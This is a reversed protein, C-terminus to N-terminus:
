EAVVGVAMNSVMKGSADLTPPNEVVVMKPGLPNNSSPARSGGHSSAGADVHTVFNCAACMVSRAGAAYMLQIGCGGCQCRSAHGAGSSSAANVTDCVSCRVSAAGRAYALRTRCGACDLQATDAGSSPVQTVTSCLACRVNSAGQSSFSFPPLPTLSLPLSPIEDRRARPSTPAARPPTGRRVQPYVLLTRCGQGHQGTCIIRGDAGPDTPLLPPPLRPTLAPAGFSPVGCRPAKRRDVRLLARAPRPRPAARAPTPEATRRPLSSAPRVRRRRGSTPDRATPWSTRARTRSHARAAGLAHGPASAAPPRAAILRQGTIIPERSFNAPTVVRCGHDITEGSARGRRADSEGCACARGGGWGGRTRACPETSADSSLRRVWALWARTVRAPKSRLFLDFSVRPSIVSECAVSSTM